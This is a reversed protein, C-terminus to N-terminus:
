SLNCCFWDQEEAEFGPTRFSSLLPPPVGTINKVQSYIPTPPPSLFISSSHKNIKNFM